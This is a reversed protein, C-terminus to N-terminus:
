FLWMVENESACTGTRKLVSRRAFYLESCSVAPQIAALFHTQRVQFDGALSSV